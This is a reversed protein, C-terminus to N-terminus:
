IALSRVELLMQSGIHAFRKRATEGFICYTVEAICLELYADNYDIFFLLHDDDDINCTSASLGFGACSNLHYALRVVDYYSRIQWPFM